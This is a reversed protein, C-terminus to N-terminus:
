MIDFSTIDSVQDRKFCLGPFRGRRFRFCSESYEQGQSHDGKRGQIAGRCAYRSETGRRTPHLLGEQVAGTSESGM